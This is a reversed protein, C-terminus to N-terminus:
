RKAAGDLARALAKFAKTFVNFIRPKAAEVVDGDLTWWHANHPAQTDKGIVYKAYNLRTGFKGTTLGSSQKVRFIDPKGSMTKGLAPHAGTSIGLSRGTNGTRVYKSDSPPPPYSPVESWIIQMAGNMAQRSVEKYWKPFNKFRAKIEKIGKFEMTLGPEAMKNKRKKRM